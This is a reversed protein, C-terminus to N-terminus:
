TQRKTNLLVEGACRQHEDGYHTVFNNFCKRNSYINHPACFKCTNLFATKPRKRFTKLIYINSHLIQPPPRLCNHTGPVAFQFGVKPVFPVRSKHCGSRRTCSKRVQSALGCNVLRTAPHPVVRSVHPIGFTQIETECNIWTDIQV